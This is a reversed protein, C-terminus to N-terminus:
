LNGLMSRLYGNGQVNSGAHSVEFVDRPRTILKIGLWFLYLAECCKLIEYALESAALIAGLGVAVFAGWILCGIDIGLAAHFVKRGGEVAATRLIFATDLGPTLTLLLAAFSYALLSDTVSM